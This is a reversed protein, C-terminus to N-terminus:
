KKGFHELALLKPNEPISIGEKEQIGEERLYLIFQKTLKGISRSMRRALSDIEIEVMIKEDLFRCTRM